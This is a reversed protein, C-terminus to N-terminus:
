KPLRAKLAKIEAGQIEWSVDHKPDDDEDSDSDAYDYVDIHSPALELCNIFVDDGLAQLSDPITMSKLESCYGFAAYGIEQVQTHLLDVNELSSCKHFAGGVIEILTTPFSVTTLSHCNKFAARGISEVGEPIEVVVLNASSDCAWVGVKTINLLFVVQFALSRRERLALAEEASLDNGGIVMMTGSEIMGDIFKDAVRWWDKCLLRMTMLSDLPVSEVFLFRWDDLYFFSPIVWKAVAPEAAPTKGGAKEGNNDGGTEIEQHTTSGATSRKLGNRTKM